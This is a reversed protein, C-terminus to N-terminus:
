GHNVRAFVTDSNLEAYLPFSVLKKAVLNLLLEKTFNESTQIGISIDNLSQPGGTLLSIILAQKETVGERTMYRHVLKLNEAMQGCMLQRDTVLELSLDREGFAKQLLQWKQRFKDTLTISYPKIEFYVEQQDHLRVLFDPTYILPRNSNELPFAFRHPQAEFDIVQTSFEFYHCAIFENYGEVTIPDPKHCSVFRFINTVASKTIKRKQM